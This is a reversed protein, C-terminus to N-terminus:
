FNIDEDKYKLEDKLKLEDDYNLIPRKAALVDNTRRIPTNHPASKLLEPNTKAENSIKIMADIFEDIVEKSESEP